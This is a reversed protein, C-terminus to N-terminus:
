EHTLAELPSVRSARYSPLLCAALSVVSMVGATGALTAAHFAPVEFLVAQMVHGIAWAGAVGPLAGLLLLRLALGLFQGRVDAPRAGLAMRVGIERRRQAVTYSLVGYTGIATLLVALGSFV